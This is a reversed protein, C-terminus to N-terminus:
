HPWGTSRSVTSWTAALRSACGSPDRHYASNAIPSEREAPVSWSRSRRNSNRFFPNLRSNWCPAVKSNEVGSDKSSISKELELVKIEHVLYGLVKELRTQVDFVELLEQKQSTNVELSNAVQDALESASVGAMLRMFVPFEVSKGLNFANKFESVLQRALAILQDTESSSEPIETVLASFYPDESVFENIRVRNVGKVLALLENGYPAVQEVICLTGIEYLESTRPSATPEKQAVLIIKKDAKLAAEIASNSKPRGFTLHAETRPFVVGERLAVVPIGAPQDTTLSKASTRTLSFAM